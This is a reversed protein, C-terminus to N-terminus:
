LISTKDILVYVFLVMAGLTEVIMDTMTDILGIDLYGKIQMDQGNVLTETINEYIDTSGDTRNIKTIITSVITDAQMDSHLFVDCSYEFIEWAVAIGISVLIGFLAAFMYSIKANKNLSYALQAGVVAFITGAMLHLLDDWWSTFYYLNYVGGLLPGMAYFSFLVYFFSNMKWRFIMSMALPLAVFGVTAICYFYSFLKNTTNAVYITSLLGILCLVGTFCIKFTSLGFKNIKEKM